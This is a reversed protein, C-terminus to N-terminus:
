DWKNCRKHKETMHANTATKRAILIPFDITTEAYRRNNQLTKATNQVTSSLHNTEGCTYCARQQRQFHQDKSKMSTSPVFANPPTVKWKDLSQNPKSATPPTQFSLDVRLPAEVAKNLTEFESGKM